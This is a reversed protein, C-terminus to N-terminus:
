EGGFHQLIGEPRAFRALQRYSFAIQKFHQNHHLWSPYHFEIGSASFSWQSLVQETIADINPCSPGYPQRQVLTDMISAFLFDRFGSNPRLISDLTLPTFQRGALSYNLFEYNAEPEEVSGYHQVREKGKRTMERVSLVAPDAYLTHQQLDDHVKIYDVPCYNSCSRAAYLKGPHQRRPSSAQSTAWHLLKRLM